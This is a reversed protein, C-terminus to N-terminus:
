YNVNEKISQVLNWAKVAGYHAGWLGELHKKQALVRESKATLNPMALDQEKVTTKEVDHFQKLRDELGMCGCNAADTVLLSAALYMIPKAYLPDVKGNVRPVGAVYNAVVWDPATNPQYTQWESLDTNYNMPMPRVVPALPKDDRQLCLGRVTVDNCGNASTCPDKGWQLSGQQTSDLRRIYVQLKTVFNGATADDLCRWRRYPEFRKAPPMLLYGGGRITLTYDGGGADAVTCRVDRVQWATYADDEPLDSEAFYVLYEEDGTLATSPTFTLTATFSQNGAAMTLSDTEGLSEDVQLGLGQLFGWHLQVSKYDKGDRTTLTNRSLPRSQKYSRGIDQQPYQHVEAVFAKPAPYYGLVQAILNEAEEIAQSIEARSLTKGQFALETYTGMNDCNCGAEAEGVCYGAVHWKDLLALEAFQEISMLNNFLSRM